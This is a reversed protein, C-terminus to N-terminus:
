HLWDVRREEAWGAATAASYTAARAGNFWIALSERMLINWNVSGNVPDRRVDESMVLTMQPADLGLEWAAWRFSAWSRPLHFAETVIILNQADPLLPLTFIANQLSSQAQAEKIVADPPLGLDVAYRAMQGGASPGDAAATGGTFVILPALGADFLQVCREVRKLTADALTGNQDMGGGMCVIADAPALATIDPEPWLFTWALMALTMLLYAAVGLKFLLGAFRALRKM